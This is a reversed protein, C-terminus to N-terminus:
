GRMFLRQWVFTILLGGTLSFIAMEFNPLSRGRAFISLDDSTAFSKGALGFRGDVATPSDCAGSPFQRL